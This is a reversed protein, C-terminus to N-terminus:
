SRAAERSLIREIADSITKDFMEQMAVGFAVPEAEEDDDTTPTDLFFDVARGTVAAIRQLYLASPANNDGEWAIVRRRTTGLRAAFVRQSIGLATRAERIRVGPSPKVLAVHLL